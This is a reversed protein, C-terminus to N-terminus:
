DVLVFIHFALAGDRIQVTDVYEGIKDVFIPNGTGIIQITHPKLDATEDVLAWLVVEERQVQASLMKAGSPIYIVQEDTVGLLYKWIRM